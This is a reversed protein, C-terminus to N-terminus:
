YGLIPDAILKNLYEMGGLMELYSWHDKVGLVYKDLYERFGEPTRSSKAYIEIHDEDFDYAQYVASPHASFPL